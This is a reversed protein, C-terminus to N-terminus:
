AEKKLYIVGVVLYILHENRVLYPDIRGGNNDGVLRYLRGQSDETISHIRHVIYQANAGYVVVDGVKLSNRDFDALGIVLDGKDFLPDMSDSGTPEMRVLKRSIIFKDAQFYTEDKLIVGQPSPREVGARKLETIEAELEAIKILLAKNEKKVQALEWILGM